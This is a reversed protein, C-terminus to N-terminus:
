LLQRTKLLAAWKGRREKLADGIVLAPMDEDLRDLVEYEFVSEGQADWEAQLSPDRHLGNRLQFWCGNKTAALNSSAGIWANGSVTSRVAYIGAEPKQEKFQRIAEKKSEKSLVVTGM